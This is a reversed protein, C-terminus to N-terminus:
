RTALGMFLVGAAIAVGYPMDEGRRLVAVKGRWARPWSILRLLMVAIAELGGAIAVAVLMKWGPELDFWLASAALLKIDGGGMWGRAFLLTGLGLVLAFFLFNQWLGIAPGEIAVALLAGVAVGGGLWNEIQLRWLDELAALLLLFFLVAALWQPASAVLNM